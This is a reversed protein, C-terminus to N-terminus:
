FQFYLFRTTDEIWTLSMLLAATMVIAWAATPQWSLWRSIGEYRVPSSTQAYRGLIQQTNPLLWVIALRIPLRVLTPIMPSLAPMAWGHLGFMGAFMTFAGATSNARFLVQALVVCLMTLGCSMVGGIRPSLSFAWKPRLLRWAHNTTIFAAHALGFLLFQLGAGHWVGVIAMTFFTPFAVM